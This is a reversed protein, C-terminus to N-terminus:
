ISCTLACPPNAVYQTTPLSKAAPCWLSRNSKSSADISDATSMSYREANFSLLEYCFSSLFESAVSFSERLFLPLCFLLYFAPYDAVRDGKKTRNKREDLLQLIRKLNVTFIAMAGQVSMGSLGAGSAVLYGYRNKLESNKAEIKYREKATQKFFESEQFAFQNTHETSKITVSYTKSKAAQEKKIECRFAHRRGSYSM